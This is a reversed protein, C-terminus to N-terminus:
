SEKEGEVWRRLDAGSKAVPWADCGLSLEDYTWGIGVCNTVMGRAEDDTLEESVMNGGHGKPHAWLEYSM